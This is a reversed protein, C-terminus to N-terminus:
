RVIEFGSVGESSSLSAPIREVRAVRAHPPGEGLLRELEALATDSGRAQVVVSGDDANRVVGTVGLRIAQTRAWWRYGVGQVRGTVRFGADAM